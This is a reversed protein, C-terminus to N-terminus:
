PRDVEIVYQDGPLARGAADAMPLRAGSLSDYLGIALSYAGEGPWALRMEDSIVQGAQWGTTAPAPPRDVQSVIAGGGDRLHVFATYDRGDPRDAQWLLRAVLEGATVEIEVQQLLAVDGLQV